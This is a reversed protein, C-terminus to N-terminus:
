RQKPSMADLRQPDSLEYAMGVTPVLFTGKAKMMELGERNAGNGDEISDVGDTVANEIGEATTAHAAVKLKQKHTEEVIARMEDVTLTPNAWDANVKIM